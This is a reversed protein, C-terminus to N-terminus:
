WSINIFLSTGDRDNISTGIAQYGAEKLANVLPILHRKNRADLYFVLESAGAHAQQVLAENLENFLTEVSPMAARLATATILKSM